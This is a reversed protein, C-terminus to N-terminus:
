FEISQWMCYAIYQPMDFMNHAISSPLSRIGRTLPVSLICDPRQFCEIGKNIGPMHAATKDHNMVSGNSSM